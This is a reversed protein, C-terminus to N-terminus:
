CSNGAKFCNSPVPKDYGPLSVGDIKPPAVGTAKLLGSVFSNSNYGDDPITLSRQGEKAPFLDYDLKDNYNTDAKAVDKYYSFESKGKPIQFERAGEQLGVDSGRNPRSVLSNYEPGASIVIYRRGSQDVNNFG